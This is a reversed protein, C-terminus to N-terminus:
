IPNIVDNIVNIDNNLALFNAGVNTNTSESACMPTPHSHYRHMSYMSGGTSHAVTIARQTYWTTITTFAM